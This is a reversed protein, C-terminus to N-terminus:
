NNRFSGCTLMRSGYYPNRLEGDKQLWPKLVM